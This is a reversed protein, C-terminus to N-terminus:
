HQRCLGETGPVYVLTRPVLTEQPWSQAIMISIELKFKYKAKMKLPKIKVMFKLLIGVNGPFFYNNFSEDEIQTLAHCTLHAGKVM